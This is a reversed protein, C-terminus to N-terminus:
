VAVSNAQRYIIRWRALTCCGSWARCRTTAHRFSLAAWGSTSPTTSSGSSILPLDPATSPQRSSWLCVAWWISCSLAYKERYSAAFALATLAAYVSSKWFSEALCIAKMTMWAFGPDAGGAPCQRVKGSTCVLAKALMGAASWQSGTIPCSTDVLRSCRTSDSNGVGQLKCPVSYLASARCILLTTATVKYVTADLVARVLPLICALLVGLIYGGELTDLLTLPSDIAQTIVDALRIHGLTDLAYRM